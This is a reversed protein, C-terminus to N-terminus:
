EETDTEAPIRYATLKIKGYRYQKKIEFAGAKQPLEEDLASECLIVGGPTMKPALLPLAKELLGSRYPPDLLAIDFHDRCGQLYAIADMATVRSREALKTALLNQRVVEQAKRSQEVFVALRAGRSLAEIGLQGSGAFLDLVAAGEVEFQIISFMAEKVQDTTPRVDLGELTNLKRGRATGTIVRM